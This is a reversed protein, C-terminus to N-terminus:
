KSPSLLFNMGADKRSMWAFDWFQIKNIRASYSQFVIRANDKMTCTLSFGCCVTRSTNWGNWLNVCVSFCLIFICARHVLFTRMNLCLVSFRCCTWRISPECAADVFAPYRHPENNEFEVSFPIYIVELSVMTKLIECLSMGGEGRWWARRGAVVWWWPQELEGLGRLDHNQSFLVLIM